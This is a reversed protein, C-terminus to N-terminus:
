SNIAVGYLLQRLTVEIMTYHKFANSQILIVHRLGRTDYLYYSRFVERDQSSMGLAHPNGGM